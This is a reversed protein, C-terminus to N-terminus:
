SPPPPPATALNIVISTLMTVVVVGIAPMTKVDLVTRVVFFEITIMWVFAALVVVTAIPPVATAVLHAAVLIAFQPVSVWNSAIVFAAYRSTRQLLIALLLVVIPHVVWVLGYGAVEHWVHASVDAGERRAEVISIPIYIPLVILAAIFSRWFGGVSLNFFNMGDADRRVLRFAGTLASLIEQILFM